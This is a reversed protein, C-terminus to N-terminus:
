KILKRGNVIYVGKPLHEIDIKSDTVKAEGVKIGSLNYVAVVEGETAFPMMIGDAEDDFVGINLEEYVETKDIDTAIFYCRFPYITNTGSVFKSGDSNLSYTNSLKKQSYSGRFNFANSGIVAYPQRYLNVNSASFVVPKGVLNNAEGWASGPVAYLYPRNAEFQQVYDFCVTNYGKLSKFEKLWFQKGTDDGAKFWNLQKGNCTISTPAFPLIITQWGNKGNTGLKSTRTYSITKAVIDRVTFFPYGDSLTIKDAVNAKVVNKGSMGTIVKDSAGIYYLTNPNSSPVVKTVTSTLGTFDAAAVDADLSITATPELPKPEGTANYTMVAKTVYYKVSLYGYSIFSEDGYKVVLAYCTGPKLDDFQFTAEGYQKSPISMYTWCSRMTSNWNSNLYYLTVIVDGYYPAASKNYLKMKGKLTTGWVTKGSKLFDLQVDSDKLLQLNRTSSATITVKSSGLVSSTSAWVNYTGSTGPKFSLQVNTTKGAPINVYATSKKSGMSSTTSAYLSVYGYFDDGTNKISVVVPQNQGALKSGIFSMQTVSLVANSSEISLAVSTSYVAKIHNCDAVQDCLEWEDSGKLKCIPYLKYTGKALKLATFDSVSLTFKAVVYKNSEISVPTTSTQKLLQINGNADYYGLGLYYSGAQTNLNSYQVTTSTGSAASITAKLFTNDTENNYGKEPQFDFLARSNFIYSKEGVYSDMDDPIDSNLISLSFFGNNSGGWGWNVHFYDSGDYGDIIFLHGTTDKLYAVYLVPRAQYLEDLIKQKWREYSYGSRNIFGTYSSKFKFYKSAVSMINGDSATTNELDFKSKLAIACYTIFNSTNSLQTSTQTGDAKQCMNNWYITTGAKITPAKVSYATYGTIEYPLKSEMKSRFYYVYQALAVGTCGLICSKGGKTPANKNFPESQGWETELLPRVPHTTPTTSSNAYLPGNSAIDLKDLKDIEEKYVNFISGQYDDILSMDFHGKDSYGIIPTTRDDGSVIVFGEDNDNNFVYFYPNQVNGASVKRPGETVKVSENFSIGKKQMFAKAQALAETRSIPAAGALGVFSFALIWTMLLKITKM